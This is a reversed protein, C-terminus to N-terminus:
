DAEEQTVRDTYFSLYDKLGAVEDFPEPYSWVVNELAQGGASVTWYAAEGKFPCFTQHDTARLLEM